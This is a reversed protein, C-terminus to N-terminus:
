GSSHGHALPTKYSLPKWARGSIWLTRRSVASDNSPQGDGPLFSPEFVCKIESTLNVLGFILIDFSRGLGCVAKLYCQLWCREREFLILQELVVLLVHVFLFGVLDRLCAEFPKQAIRRQLLSGPGDLAFLLQESRVM